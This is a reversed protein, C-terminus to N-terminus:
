DDNLMVFPARNESLPRFIEEAAMKERCSALWSPCQKLGGSLFVGIGGRGALFKKKTADTCLCGSDVSFILLYFFLFFVCLEKTSEPKQQGSM